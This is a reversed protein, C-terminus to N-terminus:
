KGWNREGLEELYGGVGNVVETVCRHLSLNDLSSQIVVQVLRHMSLTHVSGGSGLGSQRYSLLSYRLIVAMARTLELMPISETDFSSYTPVFHKLLVRPIVDPHLFACTHLIDMAVANECHIKDISLSWTTMVSAPYREDMRHGPRRKT